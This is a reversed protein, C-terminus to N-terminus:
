LFNSQWAGMRLSLEKGGSFRVKGQTEEFSYNVVVYAARQDRTWEWALLNESNSEALKWVGDHLLDSQCFALLKSYFEHTAAEPREDPERRMQIPVHIKKGEFQGDHFFRLGPVTAMVTAAAWSKERGFACLGRKEDHNEIFRVSKEQYSPEARLHGRIDEPTSHLLRDYLRKDYTFDFGLQQLRWELDWYAEAIFLFSPFKKKVRYIIEGWFEAGGFTGPESKFFPVQCRKWTKEFVENLGLMAMDCRVGDARSAIKLLEELYAMRLGPSFFNVQVTDKWSPFYHDRGHAFYSGHAWFCSDPHNKAQSADMAVFYEPHTKTWPHDLAMHNPVFDVILGMGESNLKKRIEALDEPAGLYPDLCYDYVAYPSGTIDTDKWDPLAEAYAEKLEPANLAQLRAGPSRKWVGMLWVLDFGLKHISKWYDQPISSLNKIARNQRSFRQLLIVSNIELLHPHKRM